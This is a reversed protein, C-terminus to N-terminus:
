IAYAVTAFRWVESTSRNWWLLLVPCRSDLDRTPFLAKSSTGSNCTAWYSAPSWLSCLQISLRIWWLNANPQVQKYVTKTLTIQLTELECRCGAEPDWIMACLVINSLKSNQFWSTCTGNGVKTTWNEIKWKLIGSQGCIIQYVSTSIVDKADMSRIFYSSLFMLKELSSHYRDSTYQLRLMSAFSTIKLYIGSLGLSKSVEIRFLSYHAVSM